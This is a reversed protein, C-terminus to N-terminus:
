DCQSSDFSFNFAWKLLCIKQGKGFWASLVVTICALLFWTSVEDQFADFYHKSITLNVQFSEVM